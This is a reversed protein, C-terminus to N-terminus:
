ETNFRKLLKVTMNVGLQQLRRDWSTTKASQLFRWVWAIHVISWLLKELSSSHGSWSKTESKVKSKVWPIKVGLPIFLLLLLLVFLTTLDIRL